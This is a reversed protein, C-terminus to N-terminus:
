AFTSSHSAVSFTFSYIFLLLRISFYEMHVPKILDLVSKSRIVSTSFPDKSPSTQVRKVLCSLGETSFPNMKSRILHRRLKQLDLSRSLCGLLLQLFGLSGANRPRLLFVEQFPGRQADLAGLLVGLFTCHMGRVPPSVSHRMTTTLSHSLPLLHTHTHACTHM